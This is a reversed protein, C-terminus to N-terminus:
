DPDLHDDKSRHRNELFDQLIEAAALADLMSKKKKKSIEEIGALKDYAGFSSLREDQFYIPIDILKELQAAFARVIKAQGGESDDMNLPLGIVVADVQERKIALAASQPNNQKGELVELPCVISEQPDCIALGTRRKGHDIALFRM